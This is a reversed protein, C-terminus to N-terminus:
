ASLEKRWGSLERVWYRASAHFFLYDRGAAVRRRHASCKGSLHTRDASSFADCGFSSSSGRVDKMGAGCISLRDAVLVAELEVSGNEVRSSAGATRIRPPPVRRRHRGRFRRRSSPSAPKRAIDTMMAMADTSSTEVVSKIRALGTRTPPRRTLGSRAGLPVRRLRHRVEVRTAARVHAEGHGGGTVDPILLLLGHSVKQAVDTVHTAGTPLSHTTRHRLQAAM